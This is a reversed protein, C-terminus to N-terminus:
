DGLYHKALRAVQVYGWGVAQGAMFHFHVPKAVLLVLAAAL